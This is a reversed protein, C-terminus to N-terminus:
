MGIYDSKNFMKMQVEVHMFCGKDLLLDIFVLKQQLKVNWSKYWPKHDMENLKQKRHSTLVQDQEQSLYESLDVDPPFSKNQSASPPSWEM